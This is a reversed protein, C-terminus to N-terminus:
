LVRVTGTYASKEPLLTAATDRFSGLGIIIAPQVRNLHIERIVKDPDFSKLVFYDICYYKAAYGISLSLLELQHQSSKGFNECNAANENQRQECIILSIACELMRRDNVANCLRQLMVPSKVATIDWSKNCYPVLSAYTLNMIKELLGEELGANEYFAMSSHMEYKQRMEQRLSTMARRGDIFIYKWKNKGSYFCIRM